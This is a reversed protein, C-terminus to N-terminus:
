EKGARQGGGPLPALFATMAAPMEGPAQEMVRRGWRAIVLTRLNDAALKVPDAPKEGPSEAGGIGPVPLTLRLWDNV